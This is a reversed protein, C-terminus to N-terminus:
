LEHIQKIDIASISDSCAIHCTYKNDIELPYCFWFHNKYYGGQSELNIDHMSFVTGQGAAKIIAEMKTWLTFFPQKKDQRMEDPYNALFKKMTAPYIQRHREIDIGIKVKDSFACCVIDGSHSINFDIHAPYINSCHPKGHEPFHVESLSFSKGSLETMGIKLLQWGAVSLFQDNKQHLKNVQQQKKEPLEAIWDMFQESQQVSSIREPTVKYYLISVSM